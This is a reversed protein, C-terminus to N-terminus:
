HRADQVRRKEGQQESGERGSRQVGVVGKGAGDQGSVLVLVPMKKREFLEIQAELLAARLEIPKIIMLKSSKM